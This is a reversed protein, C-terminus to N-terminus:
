SRLAIQLKFPKLTIQSSAVKGIGAEVVRCDGWGFMRTQEPMANLSPRTKRPAFRKLRNAAAPRATAWGIRLDTKKGGM